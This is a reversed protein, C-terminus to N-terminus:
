LKFRLAKGILATAKLVASMPGTPRTVDPYQLFLMSAYIASGPEKPPLRKIKGERILTVMHRFFEETRGAPRMQAVFKVPEDTRNCFTHPAGAPVSATDGSRLTTWAGDKFVGLSGEVVEFSDVSNQHVHPPPGQLRADLWIVAEFLEGSTDATSQTIEWREGVAPRFDLERDAQQSAETAVTGAGFARAV